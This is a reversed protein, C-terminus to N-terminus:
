NITPVNKQQFFGATELIKRALAPPLTPIAEAAAM